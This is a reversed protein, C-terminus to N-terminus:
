SSSVTSGVAAIDVNASPVRRCGVSTWRLSLRRDVSYSTASICTAKTQARERCSQSWFVTRELACQDLAALVADSYRDRTGLLVFPAEPTIHTQRTLALDLCMARNEFGVLLRRFLEAGVGGSLLLPLAREVLFQKGHSDCRCDDWPSASNLAFVWCTLQSDNFGIHM